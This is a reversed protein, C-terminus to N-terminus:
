LGDQRETEKEKGKRSMPPPGMALLNPSSANVTASQQQQGFSALRRTGPSKITPSTPTGPLSNNARVPTNPTSNSKPLASAPDAQGASAETLLFEVWLRSFSETEDSKDLDTKPPTSTSSRGWFSTPPALGTHARQLGAKEREPDSWSLVSALLSLMEFRKPDASPTNLFSLLVNTVLRRDVNTDTSNRRLRRLAEMLHENIIIAEHRLKEILLTKEKVEKGVRELELDRRYMEANSRAEDAVVKDQLAMREREWEEKEMRCRELETQTERLERERVQNEQASEEFARSRMSDLEGSAREAEASTSILEEKLMEVTSTLNDNQATLQQVLVERRDLEEADQKLKNGLTTRMTTLKALLNRYQAALTEKEERTRELERQLQEVPDSPGEADNQKGNALSHGNLGNVEKELEQTRSTNTQFDELQLEATLARHKYEALSQTVQILQSNYDKVAQRLEHDKAAQFDQLVSQLNESKERESDLEAADRERAERELEFDRRYMEANSRAEDAVVKDQLAMREWEEKEMRCRELETQTERLERERNTADVNWQDRSLGDDFFSRQYNKLIDAVSAGLAPHASTGCWHDDHVIAVDDQSHDLIHELLADSPHYVRSEGPISELAWEWETSERDDSVGSSKRLDAQDEDNDPSPSKSRPEAAARIVKPARMPRQLIKFGRIFITQDIKPEDAGKHIPGSRHQVSSTTDWKGSFSVEASVGPVTDIKFSIGGDKSRDDFVASAWEFTRDCGTVIMMGTKVGCGHTKNAFDYWHHFNRLTYTEFSEKAMAEEREAPNSLHLLAGLKTSCSFHVGAGGPLIMGNVDVGYRYESVSSSRLTGPDFFKNNHYLLSPSLELPQFLPPVGLTQEPDDAPLTANFLRHFYGDRLYGVDGPKVRDYLCPEPCWLPYGHRLQSLQSSYIQHAPRM